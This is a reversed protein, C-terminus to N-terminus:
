IAKIALQLAARAQDPRTKRTSILSGRGYDTTM